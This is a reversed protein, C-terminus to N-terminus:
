TGTSLIEKEKLNQMINVDRHESDGKTEPKAHYERAEYEFDERTEPKAHHERAQREAHERCYFLVLFL